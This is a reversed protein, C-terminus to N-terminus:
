VIILPTPPDLKTIQLYASLVLLTPVLRNPGVTNNIAKIAMQLILDKALSGWLEDLIIQYVRWLALHAREVLGVSWHSPM